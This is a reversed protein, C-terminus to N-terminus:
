RRALRTGRYIAALDCRFGVSALSLEGEGVTDPREPWAGDPGRRLLEARIADGHLLLIERVSPISTYTWVNSWTEAGNSPSLVEVILVPDSIAREEAQYPSCTVVLDAVRMNHAALMRPIVGADAVAVCASGQAVFANTLLRGLEIVLTGHTRLPPTVARPEGDVLEWRGDTLDAWDLFEPVSMRLPLRAASFAASM